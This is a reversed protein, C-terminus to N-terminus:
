IILYIMNYIWEVGRAGYIKYNIIFVYRIIILLRGDDNMIIIANVYENKTHCKKLARSSFLIKLYRISNFEGLNLYFFFM